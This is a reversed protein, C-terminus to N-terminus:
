QGDDGRGDRDDEERRLENLAVDLELPFLAIQRPSAVGFRLPAGDILIASGIV